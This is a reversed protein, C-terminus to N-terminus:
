RLENIHELALHGQNSRTGGDGIFYFCVVNPMSPPHEFGLRSDRSQPLYVPAAADLEIVHNAQIEQQRPHGPDQASRGRPVPAKLGRVPALVRGPITGRWQATLELDAATQDWPRGTGAAVQEHIARMQDADLRPLNGHIALLVRNLPNDRRRAATRDRESAYKFYEVDLALIAAARVRARGDIIVDDAYKLIPFQKLFGHERM